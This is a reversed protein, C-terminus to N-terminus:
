GPIIMVELVEATIEINNDGIKVENLKKIISKEAGGFKKILSRKAEGLPVRFQLLKKLEAIISIEDIENDLARKIEEIHPAYEIEM